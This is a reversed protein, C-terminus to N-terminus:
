LVSALPLFLTLPADQLALFGHHRYFAAAQQDKADVLMVAGPIEAAIARRLANVLLAGGLGRAQFERDVALRGLRIAPIAGYRPLKRRLADSLGTLPVSASALTYYGVVRQEDNLAVFCAAVRRRIDQTVQERLYRNLAPTGSDFRRRDHLTTDLATVLFPPRTM